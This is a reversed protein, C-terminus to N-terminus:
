AVNDPVEMALGCIAPRRSSPVGRLPPVTFPSGSPFESVMPMLQDTSTANRFPDRTTLVRPGKKQGGCRHKRGFVRSTRTENVNDRHIPEGLGWLEM